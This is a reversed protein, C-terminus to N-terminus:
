LSSPLEACSRAPWPEARRPRASERDSRRCPPRRPIAQTVRMRTAHEDASSGEDRLRAQLVARTFSTKATRPGMRRPQRRPGFRGLVRVLLDVHRLVVLRSAPPEQLVGPEGAAPHHAVSERGSGRPQRATERPRRGLRRGARAGAGPEAREELAGLGAAADVAAVHGRGPQGLHVAELHHHRPAACQGQALVAGAVEAHDGHVVQHLEAVPGGVGDVHRDDGVRVVAAAVGEVDVAGHLAQLLRAGGADHDLVQVTRLM